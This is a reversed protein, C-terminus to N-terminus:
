FPPRIHSWATCRIYRRILDGRGGEWPIKTLVLVQPFIRSCQSRLRDAQLRRRGSYGIKVVSRVYGGGMERNLVVGVEDNM